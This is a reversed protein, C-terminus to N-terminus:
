PTRTLTLENSYLINLRRGPTSGYLIEPYYVKCAPTDAWLGETSAPRLCLPLCARHESSSSPQRLTGLHTNFGSSRWQVYQHCM